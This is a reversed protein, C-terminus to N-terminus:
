VNGEQELRDDDKLVDGLRALEDDSIPSVAPEIMPATKWTESSISVLDNALCQLLDDELFTEIMTRFSEEANQPLARLWTKTELELRGAGCKGFQELCFVSDPCPVRERCTKVAFRFFTTKKRIWEDLRAYELCLLTTLFRGAEHQTQFGQGNVARTFMELLRLQSEAESVSPPIGKITIM